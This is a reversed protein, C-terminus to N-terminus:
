RSLALTLLGGIVLVVGVSQSLAPRERLILVGGLVSVIPFTASAAAVITVLGLQVGRAYMLIGFVDVAGILIAGIAPGFSVGRGPEPRFAVMWLLVAATTTCRTVLVPLLWGLDRAYQALVFTSVGFTAMAALGWPVGSPREGPDSRATTLERPDTSTLAVGVLTVLAGALVWGALSENLFVIALGITIAAYAAAVPSVLAVPGLELGRYLTIYAVTVVLGNAVLGVLQSRSLDLSPHVVVAVIGVVCLGAVQAIALTRASGIRRGVIAAFLDAFGWVLAAGLGYIM